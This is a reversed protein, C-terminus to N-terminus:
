SDNTKFREFEVQARQVCDELSVGKFYNGLLYIGAHIRNNEVQETLNLHCANFWNFFLIRLFSFFNRV